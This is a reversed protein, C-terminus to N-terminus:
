IRFAGRTNSDLAFYVLIVTPILLDALFAWGTAAPQTIALASSLLSLAAIFVTAWFAWRQLRLLGWVFFLKVLGVLIYYVGLAAGGSPSNFPVVFKGLLSTVLALTGFVVELLGLLGLLVAIVTVGAPRRASVENEIIQAVPPQVEGDAVEPAASAGPTTSASGSARTVGGLLAAMLSLVDFAAEFLSLLGLLFTNASWGRGKSRTSAGQHKIDHTYARSAAEPKKDPWLM